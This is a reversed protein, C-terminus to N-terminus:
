LTDPGRVPPHGPDLRSALRDLVFYSVGSLVALATAAPLPHTWLGIMRSSVLVFVGHAALILGPSLGRARDGMFPILALMGLCGMAGVISAGRAGGGTAAVSAVVAVLAFSGAHGLRAAVPRLTAISMPISVGLLSRATETDPVTAWIGFATIAFLAGLIPAQQMGRWPGLQYGLVVVLVPLGFRAWVGTEGGQAALSAGIVILIWGLLALPDPSAPQASRAILLGGAILLVLGIALGDPSHGTVYIASFVSAAVALGWDFDLGASRSILIAVIAIGGAAVGTLFEPETLLDTLTTISSSV